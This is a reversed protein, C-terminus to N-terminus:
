GVGTVPKEYFRRIMPLAYIYDWDPTIDTELPGDGHGEGEGMLPIYHIEYDKDLAELHRWQKDFLSLDLGRGTNHRKVWSQWVRRPERLPCVLYTDEFGVWRPHERIFVHAHGCGMLKKLSRTGCHPVSLVLPIM